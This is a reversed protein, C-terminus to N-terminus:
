TQNCYLFSFHKTGGRPQSYFVYLKVYETVKKIPQQAKWLFIAVLKKDDEDNGSQICPICDRSTYLYLVNIYFRGFAQKALAVHVRNDNMLAYSKSVVWILLVSLARPQATLNDGHM